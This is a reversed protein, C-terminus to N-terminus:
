ENNLAEFFQLILENTDFGQYDWSHSGYKVTLERFQRHSATNEHILMVSRDNVAISKERDAAISAIRYEAVDEIAPAQSFKASGNCKQPVYTDNTGTIQFFSVDDAEKRGDWVTKQMMGSVSVFASYTGDANMALTHVMTAGNSFGAAYIRDKDLDYERQLHEALSVLFDRDKNGTPTGESNWGAASSKDSPDPAGTVYAVAYGMPVAAEEFHVSTRMDEASSGYGHLMVVLPANRTNEPMDLIMGHKVGDFTCTYTNGDKLAVVELTQEEAKKGCGAFLLAFACLLATRKMATM